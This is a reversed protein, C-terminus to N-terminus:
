KDRMKAKSEAEKIRNSLFLIESKIYNERERIEELETQLIKIRQLDAEIREQRPTKIYETM